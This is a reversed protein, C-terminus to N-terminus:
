PLNDKQDYVAKFRKFLEANLAIDDYHQYANSYCRRHLRRCKKAQLRHNLTQLLQM